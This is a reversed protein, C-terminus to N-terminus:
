LPCGIRQCPETGSTNTRHEGPTRDAHEGGIMPVCRCDKAPLQEMNPVIRGDEMRAIFDAFGFVRSDHTVVIVARDSWVAVSALLEMVAHGAVSDLSATPEDCVVLRPEHILARAIAVRQQEGGSLETPLARVRSGLGLKELLAESRSVAQRRPMGDALLPIAANEAGSLAPILNFQQFVFGINHRRFLVRGSKSLSSLDEGLVRVTGRTSDLLGAIVSLLTTKGSGSPGVLMTLRGLQVKLDIGRLAVVQGAGSGFEKYVGVCEVAVDTGRM